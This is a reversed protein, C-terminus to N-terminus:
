NNKGPKKIIGCNKCRWVADNAPHKKGNWYYLKMKRGPVLNMKEGCKECKPATPVKLSNAEQYDRPDEEKYNDIYWEAQEDIWKKAQSKIPEPVNELHKGANKFEGMREKEHYVFNNPENGTPTYNLVWLLKGHQVEWNGGDGDIHIEVSFPDDDDEGLVQDFSPGIGLDKDTPWIPDWENLKNENLIELFKYFNIM